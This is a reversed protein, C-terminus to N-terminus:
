KPTSQPPEVVQAKDVHFRLSQLTKPDVAGVGADMAGREGPKITGSMTVPDAQRVVRGSADVLVPTVQIGTLPLPARNEFVVIVRGNAAVQPATAVYNGPNRPLDIRLAEAAAAQGINSNSTAAAQYYKL